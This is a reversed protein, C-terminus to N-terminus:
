IEDIYRIITKILSREIYLNRIISYCDAKFAPSHRPSSIVGHWYQTKRTNEKLLDDLYFKIEEITKM